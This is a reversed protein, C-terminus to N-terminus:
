MFAPIESGENTKIVKFSLTMVSPNDSTDFEDKVEIIIYNKDIEDAEESISINSLYSDVKDFFKCLGENISEVDYNDLTCTNLERNIYDKLPTINKLEETHYKIAFHYIDAM